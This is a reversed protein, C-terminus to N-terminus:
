RKGIGVKARIAEAGRKVALPTPKKGVFPMYRRAPIGKRNSGMQHVAAYRRDSGLIAKRPTVGVTRPSRALLQDRRLTAPAGSKLPAWPTPRLSPNNFAGKATEALVDTVARLIPGKNKLRALRRRIDPSLSDRRMAFKIM